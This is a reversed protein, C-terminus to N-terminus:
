LFSHVDLTSPVFRQWNIEDLHKLSLVRTVDSCLTSHFGTYAKVRVEEM